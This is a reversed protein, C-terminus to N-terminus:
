PAGPRLRLVVITVVATVAVIAVVIEFLGQDLAGAAAPELVFVDHDLTGANEWVVIDGVAASTTDTHSAADDFHMEALRSANGGDEIHVVLTRPAAMAPGVVVRGVMGPHIHCHYAYTGQTTFSRTYADGPALTPSQASAPGGDALVLPACAVLLALALLPRM